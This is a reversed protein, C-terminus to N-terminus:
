AESVKFSERVVEAIKDDPVGLLDLVWGGELEIVALERSMGMTLRHGALIIANLHSVVAVNIDIGKRRQELDNDDLVQCLTMWPAVVQFGEDLLIKLIKRAHALNEETTYRDDEALPHALYWVRRPHNSYMKDSKGGYYTLM